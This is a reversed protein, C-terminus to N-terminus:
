SMMMGVEKIGLVLYIWDISKLFRLSHLPTLPYLVWSGEIM